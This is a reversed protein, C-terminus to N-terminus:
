RGTIVRVLWPILPEFFQWLIFVFILVYLLSHREINEKIYAYKYPLLSYLIRSGDLPPIPMLNFVALTVNVTTILLLIPFASDPISGAQIFRILGGFILAITLNSLPGVIAVIAEGWKKTRLNYPNFPVPKAWGFVIGGPLLATILPVIVSGFLEMHKIPNITLRGAYKATPDGLFYATYGHALEHLVISFILIALSFILNIEM